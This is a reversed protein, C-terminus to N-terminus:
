TRPADHKGERARSKLDVVTAKVRVGVGVGVRARARARLRVRLRVWVRARLRVSVRSKVDVVTAKRAANLRWDHSTVINRKLLQDDNVQVCALTCFLACIYFLYLHVRTNAYVM